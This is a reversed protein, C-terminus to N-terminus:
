PELTVKINVKNCVYKVNDLNIDRYNFLHLVLQKDELHSGYAILQGIGHKWLEGDKVEVLSDATLLDINGSPTPYERVGGLQTQLRKVIAYEKRQQSTVHYKPLYRKLRKVTGLTETVAVCQEQNLKTEIHPASERLLLNLVEEPIDSKLLYKKFDKSETVLFKEYTNKHWGQANKRTAFFEIILMLEDFTLGDRIWSFLKKRNIGKGRLYERLKKAYSERPPKKSKIVKCLIKAQINTLRTLRCVLGIEFRFEGTTGDVIYEPKCKIKPIIETEDIKM